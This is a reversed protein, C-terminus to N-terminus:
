KEKSSYGTMLVLFPICIVQTIIVVIEREEKDSM